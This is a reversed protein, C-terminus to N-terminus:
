DIISARCIYGFGGESDGFGVGIFDVRDVDINWETSVIKGRMISCFVPLETTLMEEIAAVVVM